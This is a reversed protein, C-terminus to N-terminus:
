RRLTGLRRAINDRLSGTHSEPVRCTTFVTQWVALKELVDAMIKKSRPASLGFNMGETAIDDTSLDNHRGNVQLIQETQYINPVIDYAPSLCWGHRTHLMAFNQLHD